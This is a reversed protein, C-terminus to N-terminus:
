ATSATSYLISSKLASCLFMALIFGLWELSLFSLFLLFRHMLCRINPIISMGRVALGHLLPLTTLQFSVFNKIFMWDESKYASRRYNIPIQSRTEIDSQGCPCSHVSPIFHRGYEEIPAHNFKARVCLFVLIGIRKLWGGGKLYSPQIRKNKNSLNWFYHGQNNFNTIWQDICVKKSRERLADLSTFPDLDSFFLSGRWSSGPSVM